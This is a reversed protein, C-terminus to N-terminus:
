QAYVLDREVSARVYPNMQSMASIVAPRGVLDSLDRELDFLKFMGIKAGPAFEAVLDVDSNPGAEDRAVSGFVGLRVVGYRARLDPLAAKLCALTEDRTVAFGYCM